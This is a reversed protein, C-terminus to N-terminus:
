LGSFISKSNGPESHTLYFLDYNLVEPAGYKRLMKIVGLWLIGELLVPIIALECPILL